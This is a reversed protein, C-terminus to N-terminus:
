SGRGLRKLWGWPGSRVPALALPPLEPARGALLARPAEEVMARARAEGVWAAIVALAPSFLPPRGRLNHADTALVHVLDRRLLERSFERVEAGFTGTVSGTTLQGWSGLRVVEEYRRVDDQFYRIREPHAFVVDLGALKMQFVLNTLNVPYQTLSLELLVTKGNDGLTAFQRDQVRQILDACVHIEAGPLVEVDVGESSLRERLRAVGALVVPRENVYSGDKCHPTAVIIRIGDGRAVRAFEVAEDETEVGDDVGPLIHTHLDIM